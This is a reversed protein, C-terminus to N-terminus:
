KVMNRGIRDRLLLEGATICFTDKIANLELMLDGDTITYVGKIHTDM